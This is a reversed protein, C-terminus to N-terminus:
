DVDAVSGTRRWIAKLGTELTQKEGLPQTFDTQFTYESGPTRGRSRERYSAQGRGLVADSNAFQDYYDSTNGNLAYQGLVNWERRAQAFIKAYTGTLESNLGSFTSTSARTFLDNPGVPALLWSLLNSSSLRYGNLSGALSLSQCESLDYDLGLTGYYWGGLNRGTSGQTLTSASFKDTRAREFQNPGYWSGM